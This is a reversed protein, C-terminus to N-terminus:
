KKRTDPIDERYTEDTVIRSQTHYKAQYMYVDARRVINDVDDGERVLTIGISITMSLTTKNYDVKVNKALDYYRKAIAQLDPKQDVKLVVIFEDGGWRGCVNGKRTYMRLAQGFKKLIKDGAEHGYTNNFNGFGNIDAFLVCFLNHYRHYDDIKYEIADEVYQRRSIQTLPDINVANYLSMLTDDAYERDGARVFITLVAKIKGQRNRLPVSCMKIEIRYGDHHKFFARESPAYGNKKVKNFPCGVNCLLDGTECLCHMGFSHCSENIMEHQLYGTMVEAKKNWFTIKKDESVLMIGYPLQDLIYEFNDDFGHKFLDKSILSERKRVPISYLKECMTVFLGQYGQDVQSAIYIHGVVDSEDIVVHSKIRSVIARRLIVALPEILDVQSAKMLFCLRGDEIFCIGKQDHDELNEYLIKELTVLLEQSPRVRKAKPDDFRPVHYILLAFDHGSEEYSECYSALLRTFDQPSLLQDTVRVMEQKQHITVNQSEEYYISYLQTDYPYICLILLDSFERKEHKVLLVMWQDENGPRKIRLLTHIKGSSAKLRPMITRFDMFEFYRKRDLPNVFSHGYANITEELDLDIMEINQLEYNYTIGMMTHHTLDILYSEMFLLYATAVLDINSKEDPEENEDIKVIIVDFMFAHLGEQSAVMYCSCGIKIKGAMFEFYERSGHIIKGARTQLFTGVNAGVRNCQKESAELSDYGMKKLVQMYGENASLYHMKMGDYLLVALNRSSLYDLQSEIKNYFGRKNIEEFLYGKSKLEKMVNDYSDAKAIYHGQARECGISRLFELMEENEVGVVLTQSGAKKAVALTSIILTKTFDEHDSIVNHDIKIGDIAPNLLLKTPYTYIGFDNLWIHFGCKCLAEIHTYITEKLSLLYRSEIEINFQEPKVDYENLIAMVQDIMDPIEFDTASFNVSFMIEKEHNQRREVIRQCAQRFENLDVKYCIGSEELLPIFADSCYVTDDIIWRTLCELSTIERTLSRMIPQFYVQIDGSDLAEDIHNVFYEKNM